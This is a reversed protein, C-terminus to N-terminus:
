SLAFSIFSQSCLNGYRTMCFGHQTAPYPIRGDKTLFLLM